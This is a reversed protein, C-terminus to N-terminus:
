IVNVWFDIIVTEFPQVYIRGARLRSLLWLFAVSMLPSSPTVTSMCSYMVVMILSKGIFKPILVAGVGPLVIQELNEIRWRQFLLPGVRKVCTNRFTQECAFTSPGVIV